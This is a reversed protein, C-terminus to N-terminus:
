FTSKCISVQSWTLLYPSVSIGSTFSFLLLVIFCFPKQIYKSAEITPTIEITSGVHIRGSKFCYSEGNNGRILVPISPIDNQLKPRNSNLPKPKFSNLVKDNQFIPKVIIVRKGIIAIDSIITSEEDCLKNGNSHIKYTRYETGAIIPAYM